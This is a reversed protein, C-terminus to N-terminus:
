FRTLVFSMWFNFDLCTSRVRRSLRVHTRPCDSMTTLVWKLAKLQDQSKIVGCQWVTRAAGMLLGVTLMQPQTASAHQELPLYGETM